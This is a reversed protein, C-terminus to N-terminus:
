LLGVTSLGAQALRRDPAARRPVSRAPHRRLAAGALRRQGCRGHRRVRSIGDVPVSADKLRAADALVRQEGGVLTKVVGVGWPPPMPPRGTLATYRELAQAPTGAVLYYALAPGPVSVLWADRRQTRMEWSSRRTDDLLFGYGRNSVVWPVPLYTSSGYKVERRDAAWLDFQRGALALGDFREGLGLLTEAEDATAAVATRAVTAGQPPQFAVRIVGEGQATVEVTATGAGGETTRVFCRQGGPVAELRELALLHQWASSGSRQYSSTGYPSNGATGAAERFLLRGGDRAEIGWPQLHIVVVFGGAQVAVPSPSTTPIATAAGSLAASGAAPTPAPAVVASSLSVRQSTTVATTSCGVLGVTAALGALL